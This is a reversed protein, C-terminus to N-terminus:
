GNRLSDGFIYVDLCKIFVNTTRLQRFVRGCICIKDPGNLQSEMKDRYQCEAQKITKRFSYSCQKYEAINGSRKEHNFATTLAKLKVCISGEIWLKQNPYSKITVTPVVEGICMRIFESVSDAYLDIKNDSAQRFMKWDVHDFCDQLTSESHTLGTNFPKLWPDIRSSNRGIPRYSIKQPPNSLHLRLIDLKRPFTPPYVCSHSYDFLITKPSLATPMQNYPNRPWTFLLVQTVTHEYVGVRGSVLSVNKETQV